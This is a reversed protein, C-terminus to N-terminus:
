IQGYQRLVKLLKELKEPDMSPDINIQVQAKAQISQATSGQSQETSAVSTQGKSEGLNDQAQRGLEEGTDKRQDPVDPLKEAFAVNDGELTGLKAYVLSEIFVSVFEDASDPHVAFNIAQQRVKAKSVRDGKFTNFIKGFLQPKLCAVRLLPERENEPAAIVQKAAETAQFGKEDGQMLGYQKMASARANARSSSAQFVGPFIIEKPQSGTHTKSVLKDAYAIAQKLDIRPFTSGGKRGGKPMTVKKTEKM